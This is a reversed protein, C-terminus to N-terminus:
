RNRGEEMELEAANRRKVDGALESYLVPDFSYLVESTYCHRGALEIIGFEEDILRDDDSTRAPLDKGSRENLHQELLSEVDDIDFIRRDFDEGNRYHMEAHLILEFPGLAWPRLSNM